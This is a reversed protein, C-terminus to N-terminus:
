VVHRSQEGSSAGPRPGGRGQRVLPHPAPREAAVLAAGRGGRGPWVGAAPRLVSDAGARVAAVDTVNCDTINMISVVPVMFMCGMLGSTLLSLICILLLSLTSVTVLMRSDPVVGGGGPTKDHLESETM